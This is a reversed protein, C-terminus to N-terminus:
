AEELQRVLGGIFATLFLLLNHIVLIRGFAGAIIAGIIGLVPTDAFMAAVIGIDLIFLSLRIASLIAELKLYFGGQDECCCGQQFAESLAELGHDFLARSRRHCEQRHFSSRGGGTSVPLHSRRLLRRMRTM